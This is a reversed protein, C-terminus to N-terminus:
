QKKSNMWEDKGQKQSQMKGQCVPAHYPKTLSTHQLTVSPWLLFLNRKNPWPANRKAGGTSSGTAQPFGLPVREEDEPSVGAQLCGLSPRLCM